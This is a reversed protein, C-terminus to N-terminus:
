STYESENDIHLCKLPLRTEREVMAHFQQFYQFVQDKTQLLYAWTKRTADDIFTFVYKNGGLSEVEIPGCVDFHVLELKHKRWKM